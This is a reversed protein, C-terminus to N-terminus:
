LLLIEGGGIKTKETFWKEIYSEPSQILLTKVM